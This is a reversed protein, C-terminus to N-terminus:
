PMPCTVASDTDCGDSWASMCNWIATADTLQLCGDFYAPPKLLQRNYTGTTLDLDKAIEWNAFAHTDDVIFVTETTYFQGIGDEHNEVSYQSITRDRLSELVCTAAAPDVFHPSGGAGYMAAWFDVHPCPNPLDCAFPEYGPPTGGGIQMGKEDCAPLGGGTGGMGGMGATGGDGVIGGTGGTSTHSTSGGPGASTTTSTSGGVSVQGACAPLVLISVALVMFRRRM